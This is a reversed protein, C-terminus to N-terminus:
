KVLTMQGKALLAGMDQRSIFQYIYVGSPLNPVTLTLSRSQGASIGYFVEDHVTQGVLNFILVSLDATIPLDVLINTSPNFPNPYNGSLTFESVSHGTESFIGGVSEIM